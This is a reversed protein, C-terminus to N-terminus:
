QNQVENGIEPRSFNQVGFDSSDFLFFTGTLAEAQGGSIPHQIARRYQKPRALLAQQSVFM